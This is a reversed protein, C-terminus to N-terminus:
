SAMKLWPLSPPAYAAAVAGTNSRILLWVKERDIRTNVERYLLNTALVSQNGKGEGTHTTVPAICGLLQQGADNAPHILILERDPVETILLHDKFKLSQRKEL